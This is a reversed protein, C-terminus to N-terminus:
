DKKELDLKEKIKKILENIRETSPDLEKVKESCEYAEPYKGLDYLADGKLTELESGKEPKESKRSPLNDSM